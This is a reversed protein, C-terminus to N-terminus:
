AVKEKDGYKESYYRKNISKAHAGYPDPGFDDYEPTEGYKECLAEYRDMDDYIKSIVNSM